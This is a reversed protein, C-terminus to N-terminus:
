FDVRVAVGFDHDTTTFNNAVDNRYIIQYRADFFLENILEYTIVAQGISTNVRNGELFSYEQPDTDLHPILYDGGVNKLLGGVPDYVNEGERQIEFRFSSTLRHAPQYDFRFFWSDSNPGIHHSLIRYFSGYDNDRSREHSFTFPNVRTYEVAVTTNFLDFPDVVMAGLQFAFKNQYSSTGLKPFNLDDLLLTAQLETNRLLHTKVDFAWLVNDREERSRQASEILTVPNLYALDVSRNSYIAMEQFGLTFRPFTIELRHAGLYKDAVIPESLSATSPYPPPLPSTRQSKRGLLWGHLFTYKIAKYEADARIFDFVRVNDSVVLKDGYGSGWLLRERGVQASFIGGDYRVYGEVFDFNKADLINLTYAQSIHRDRRLVDRSGWFQANTGQLYYGLNDYITGRVRGGFQVFESHESGLADGESRRADLMLLGDVFLTVTTDTYAYLHKEADAFREGDFWEIGSRNEILFYSSDISQSIDFQFEILFDRLQNQETETLRNEEKNITNLFTAIERRSIPLINDHYNEIVGKLEMRKLFTYVPNNVPVNEVQAFLPTTVVVIVIIVILRLFIEVKAPRDHVMRHGPVHQAMDHYLGYCGLLTTDEEVRSHLSPFLPHTTKQFGVNM